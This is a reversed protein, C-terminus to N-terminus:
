ADNRRYGADDYQNDPDNREAEERATDIHDALANDIGDLENMATLLALWGNDALLSNRATNCRIQSRLACQYDLAANMLKELQDIEAAKRAAVNDHLKAM